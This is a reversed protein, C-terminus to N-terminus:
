KQKGTLEKSEFFKQLEIKAFSSLFEM